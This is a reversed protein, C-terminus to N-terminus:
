PAVLNISLKYDHENTREKKTLKMAPKPVHIDQGINGFITSILDIWQPHGTLGNNNAMTIWGKNTINDLSAVLQSITRMCRGDVFANAISEKMNRHAEYSFTSLVLYPTWISGIQMPM